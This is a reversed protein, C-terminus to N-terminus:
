DPGMGKEQRQQGFAQKGRDSLIHPPLGTREIVETNEEDKSLWNVDNGHIRSDLNKPM